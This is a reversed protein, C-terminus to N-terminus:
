LLAHSEEYIRGINQLYIDAIAERRICGVANALGNAPSFPEDAMIWGGIRAYDPLRQNIAEVAGQIEHAPIGGHGVLIAVNFPRAEGFVAAQAIAPHGALMGEVWEPAVNRGYATAYATKKRGTLFLYGDADLHGLDGTAWEMDPGAAEQGLYGDFLSGEVIVEGDDAIRIRVHGLPRGVSNERECGPHNLSVVSGAESLGYGQFVPLGFLRATQLMSEPVPAGGVAVFRLSDPADFGAAIGGLLAKLLQPVLVTTTPRTEALVEFLRKTDLSSSGRFGCSALSPLQATAGAWLPAYLGAINELLTSLPLLSLSRDSPHAQVAACISATVQLLAEPSLCVGKPQGTSGSTYTVKALDTRTERRSSTRELLTLNRGAVHLSTAASDPFLPAIRDPDDTVIGDLGADRILHDLQGDSFFAPMPVCLAQKDLLALDLCAWAIGNDLLLGIRSGQIIGALCDIKTALEGYGLSGREDRLATAGPRRSAHCRIRDLLEIM